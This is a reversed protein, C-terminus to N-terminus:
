SNEKLIDEILDSQIGTFTDFKKKRIILLSYKRPQEEGEIRHWRECSYQSKNKRMILLENDKLTRKLERESMPIISKQNAWNFFDNYYKKFELYYCIEQNDSKDEDVYSIYPRNNEPQKFLQDIYNGFDSLPNRKDCNTNESNNNLYSLYAKLFLSHASQEIRKSQESLNLKTELFRCFGQIASYLLLPYLQEVYDSSSCHLYQDIIKAYNYKIYRYDEFYSDTAKSKSIDALYHIFILLLYSIEDKLLPLETKSPLMQMANDINFDIIEDANIPNNNLYVPFISLIGNQRYRHTKKVIHSNRNLHYGKATICVPISQLRTLKLFNTNLSTASVYYRGRGNPNHLMDIYFIHSFLNAICKVNNINSGSICISFVTQEFLVKNGFLIKGIQNGNGSYFWLLSHITYAFIGMLEDSGLICNFFSQFLNTKKVISHVDLGSLASHRNFYHAELQGNYGISFYNFISKDLSNEDWCGNDTVSIYNQSFNNAIWGTLYAGDIFNSAENRLVYRVYRKCVAHFPKQYYITGGNNEIHDWYQNDIFKLSQSKAALVIDCNYTNSKTNSLTFEVNFWYNKLTREYIELQIIKPFFDSIKILENNKISYLSKKRMTFSEEFEEVYDKFSYDVDKLM